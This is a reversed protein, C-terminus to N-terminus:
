ICRLFLHGYQIFNSEFFIDFIWWMKQPHHCTSHTSTPPLLMWFHAGWNRYGLFVRARGLFQSQHPAGLDSVGFFFLTCEYTCFVILFLPFQTLVACPCKTEIDYHVHFIYDRSKQIKIKWGIRSKTAWTPTRVLYYLCERNTHVHAHCCTTNGQHGDIQKNTNRLEHRSCYQHWGGGGWGIKPTM